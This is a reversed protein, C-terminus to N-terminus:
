GMVVVRYGNVAPAVNFGITVENISTHEVDCEVQAYPAGNAYVQVTVDRTGLNHTVTYDVLVGNGIDSSYRRMLGSISHVHDARALSSSTGEAISSSDTLAVPAATSVAHQHDRRALGAATGGDSADGANVTSITGTSTDIAHTHDERAVGTSAGGSNTTSGSLGSPTTGYDVAVDNPNVVIGDGAGVDLTNGTKTLGAGAEISGAGSFQAWTIPTTGVTVAEDTTCVWGSDANVTGEEVFTFASAFEDSEDMDTARTWAGASVVYIGNESAITQDKVLVRDGAALAVGDITMTGNLSAINTTTAARVSAKADLGQAVSDVYGKNAADGDAVPDSVNTLRNGGMSQNGTFARTGDALTYQTHDDDGLGTMAGHDSVGRTSYWATGDWVYLIQTTTDYYVQGEVPSSPAGALNEVRVRRLENQALDLDTLFLRAM